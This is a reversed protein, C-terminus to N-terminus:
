GARRVEDKVGETSGMELRAARLAQEPEVGARLKAEIAADLYGELEEDLDHDMQRRRLLAALGACFRRLFSM